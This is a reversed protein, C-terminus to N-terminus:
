CCGRSSSGSRGRRRWRRRPGCAGRSSGSLRCTARRIRYRRSRGVMPTDCRALYIHLPRSRAALPLLLLLRHQQRAATSASSVAVLCRTAGVTAFCTTLHASLLICQIRLCTGTIGGVPLWHLRKDLRLPPRIKGRLYQLDPLAELTRPARHQLHSLGDGKSGTGDPEPDGAAIDVGERAPVSNDALPPALGCCQLM